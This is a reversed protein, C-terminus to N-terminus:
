FKIGFDISLVSNRVSLDINSLTEDIVNIVGRQYSLGGFLATNVGVRYEIGGGIMVMVDFPKFSEVLVYEEELAEDGLKIEFGGGVQFFIGFDPSLENTMLKLTVPLQLYQVNYEELTNPFTGGEEQINIGIKKPVIFLGTSFFYTDTLQQDVVLGLGFKLNAGDNEADLSDSTLEMQHNFSFLPSFKLGLKTQAHGLTSFVCTFCCLIFLRKM